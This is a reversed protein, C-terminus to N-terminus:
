QVLIIMQDKPQNISQNTSTTTKRWQVAKGFGIMFEHLKFTTQLAFKKRRSGTLTLHGLFDVAVDYTSSVKDNRCKPRNISQNISQIQGVQERGEQVEEKNIKIKTRLNETLFPFYRFDAVCYIRYGRGTRMRVRGGSMPIKLPPNGKWM